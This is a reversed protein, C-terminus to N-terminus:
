RRFPDVRVRAGVDIRGPGVPQVEVSVPPDYPVNEPPRNSLDMIFMVVAAALAVQSIILVTRAQRDKGLTQQYLDELEPDAFTGDPNRRECSAPDIACIAELQEFLDDAQSNLSFGYLATGGSVALAAWKGTGLLTWSDEPVQAPSEQVRDVGFALLEPSAPGQADVAAASGGFGVLLGWSLLIPGVSPRQIM